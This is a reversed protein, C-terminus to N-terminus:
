GIKLFGVKLSGCCACPAEMNSPMDEDHCIRCQALKLPFGSLDMKDFSTDTEMAVSEQITVKIAFAKVTLLVKM